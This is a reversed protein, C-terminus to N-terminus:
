VCIRCASTVPTQFLIKFRPGTTGLLFLNKQGGLQDGATAGTIGRKPYGVNQSDGPM